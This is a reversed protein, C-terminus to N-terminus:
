IKLPEISHTMHSPLKTAWKRTVAGLPSSQFHVLPPADFPGRTCGKAVQAAIDATIADPHLLASKLNKSSQARAHDHHYGVNAGHKIIDMVTDIFLPDPYESLFQAWAPAHLRLAVLPRHLPQLTPHNARPASNPRPLPIHIPPFSNLLSPGTSKPALFRAPGGAKRTKTGSPAPANPRAAKNHGFLRRTQIDLDIRGWKRATFFDAHYTHVAAWNYESAFQMLSATYAWFGSIVSGISPTMPAIASRLISFYTSLPIIVSSLSWYEKASSDGTQLELTDGNLALIRQDAKDRYQPDLKYLDSSRFEHTVIATIVAAEVLPFQSLLSPSAGAAPNTSAPPVFGPVHSSLVDAATPAVASPAPTAAAEPPLNAAAQLATQLLLQLNAMGITLSSVETTLGHFQAQTVTDSVPTEPNPNTSTSM